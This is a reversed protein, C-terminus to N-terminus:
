LTNFIHLSFEYKLYIAYIINLDLKFASGNLLDYGRAISFYESKSATEWKKQIM